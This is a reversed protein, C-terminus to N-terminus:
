SPVESLVRYLKDKKLFYLGGVNLPHHWNIIIARKAAPHIEAMNDMRVRIVKYPM